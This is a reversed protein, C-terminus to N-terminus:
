RTPAPRPANRNPAALFARQSRPQTGLHHGLFREVFDRLRELGGPPLAAREGRLMRAAAEVVDLPLTGVRAGAARQEAACPRCLRGGAAASFVVRPPSGEAPAERDCSACRELAPTLGHSRLFELEFRVLVAQPPRTGEDLADLAASVLDFLRAEPHGPRCGLAALELVTTGARYRELDRTLGRRRRLIRGEVLQGLDGTRPPRWALELEDFLDLVAYYRSRPRYAGRALLRVLGERRTLAWVVLSSESYPHRRLVLARDGHPGPRPASPRRRSV